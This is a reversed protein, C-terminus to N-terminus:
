SFSWTGFIPILVHKHFVLQTHLTTSECQVTKTVWRKLPDRKTPKFSMQFKPSKLLTTLSSHKKNAQYILTTKYNGYCFHEERLLNKKVNNWVPDLLLKHNQFTGQIEECRQGRIIYSVQGIITNKLYLTAKLTKYNFAITYEICPKEQDNNLTLTLYLQHMTTKKLNATLEATAISHTPNELLYIYILAEPLTMHKYSRKVTPMYTNTQKLEDCIALLSEAEVNFQEVAYYDYTDTPSEPDPTKSVLEQMEPSEEVPSPDKFGRWCVNNLSNHIKM